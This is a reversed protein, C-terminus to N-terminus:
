ARPVSVDERSVGVPLTRIRDALAQADEIHRWECRPCVLVIPGPVGSPSVPLPPTGREIMPPMSSLDPRGPVFIVFYRGLTTTQHRGGGTCVLVLRRRLHDSHHRIEGAGPRRTRRRGTM